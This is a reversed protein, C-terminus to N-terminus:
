LDFFFGTVSGSSMVSDDTGALNKGRDNEHCGLEKWKWKYSHQIHINHMLMM